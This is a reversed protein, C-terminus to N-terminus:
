AYPVVVVQHEDEYVVRGPDTSRVLVCPVGHDALIALYGGVRGTVHAASEKFWAAAGPNVARDYVTADVTSPDVVNAEYWANNVRRFEAQEATLLGDNALGNVLGFVGPFFGRRNRTPSQYRLYIHTM